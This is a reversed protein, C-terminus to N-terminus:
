IPRIIKTLQHWSDVRSAIQRGADALVQYVPHAVPRDTDSVEILKPEPNVRVRFHRFFIPVLIEARELDAAVSRQRFRKQQM